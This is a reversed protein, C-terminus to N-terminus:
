GETARHRDASSVYYHDKGRRPRVKNLVLGLVRGGANQYDAIVTLVHARRTRRADVVLVAGDVVPALLSADAVNEMPPSDIIVYDYRDAVDALFQQMAHSTLLEAPNPPVTGAPLIDLMSDSRTIKAEDFGINGVLITTLGVSNELGFYEAIKPRRLDADILLVRSRLGALTLAFNSSFTSKGEAPSTSTVLIRQVRDSVGAYTLASRVRRFEESVPGLPDTEVVLGLGSRRDGFQSVSGLVPVDTVEAAVAANPLRADLVGRVFAILVGALLGVLAALATDQSKNPASQVAPAVAEDIISATITPAGEAGSPSVAAVVDALSEAVANAVDAARQPSQSTMTIRLIVTDSPTSVSINRALERPTVDLDLDEIVPELVRSSTALQAFSQMQNQAYTTGQNLDSGSSGQSISVYMTSTAQFTPSTALSVGLGVAAGVLTGVVVFVWGKRISAWVAALTWGSDVSM